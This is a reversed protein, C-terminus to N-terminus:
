QEAREYPETPPIDYYQLLYRMIKGFTPAASSEAWIVDKPNDIKVVVVFRPDDLPAYGAFTGITAGDDYGKADSKAVQATGTKGGVRYGPVDARKGHGNVVVNRLMEGVARATEEKIVRQRKQPAIIEERGDAYTMKEVIQPTMLVGGNALAGYAVALQLPTVSIGQGFSATFFQIDRKTEELNKTNGPSEGPLVIDTKKGFGFQRVYDAFATNGLLKEVYIVGTNISEELVKTMTSKGYVKGEANTITYGAEVVSGTDVYATDPTVVGHDIGIAMTIPKFVSGPEYAHSVIPNVFRAIDEVTNYTNPDFSPVSAMALIKGDHPSLVVASGGDARHREVAERLIREVEYQVPYSVTLFVDPGNQAPTLLRDGISIWGGGAAREQQLMGKQGRLINEYSAELGYRGRYDQGDSGVFGVIHSALEGGPYYRFYEQSLHIGDLNSESLRREEEPSLRHKLIEFLDERKSLKERVVGEDLDLLSSLVVTTKEVDTVDRPVAYAMNYARNIAVPYTTENNQAYITGRQPILEELAEHQGRALAQYDTHRVIQLVALRVVILAAAVVVFFVVVSFRWQRQDAFPHMARAHNVTHAAHM